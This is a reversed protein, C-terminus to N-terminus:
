GTGAAIVQLGDQQEKSGACQLGHGAQFMVQVAVNTTCTSGCLPLLPTQSASLLTPSGPPWLPPPLQSGGGKDEEGGASVQLIDQAM